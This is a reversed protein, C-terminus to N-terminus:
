ARMICRGTRNRLALEYAEEFTAGTVPEKLWPAEIWYAGALFQVRMALSHVVVPLSAGV